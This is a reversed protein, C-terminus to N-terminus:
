GYKIDRRGCQIPGNYGFYPKPYLLYYKAGCNIRGFYPPNIAPTEDGHRRRSFSFSGLGCNIRWFYPPNTAPTIKAPM